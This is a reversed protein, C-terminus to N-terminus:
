ARQASRDGARRYRQTREDLLVDVNKACLEDLHRVLAGRLAAV